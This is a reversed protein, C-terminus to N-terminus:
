LASMNAVVFRCSFLILTFSILISLNYQTVHLSLILFSCKRPVVLTTCAELLIVSPIDFQYPCTVLLFSSCGCQPFHKPRIYLSFSSLVVSFLNSIHLGVLSPFNRSQSRALHHVPRRLSFCPPIIFFFLWNCPGQRVLSSQTGHHHNIWLIRISMNSHSCYIHTVFILVEMSSSLMNTMKNMPQM